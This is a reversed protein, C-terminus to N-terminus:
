HECCCRFFRTFTYHQTWMAACSGGGVVLIENEQLADDVWEWDNGILPFPIAACAEKWEALSCLRARPGLSACFLVASDFNMTPHAAQDVSFAGLDLMGPPCDSGVSITGLPVWLSGNWYYFGPVVNYPVVGATDTNYVLLSIAPAVVPATVNTATLALRPLLLGRQNNPPLGSGDVDLLASSDPAFGTM